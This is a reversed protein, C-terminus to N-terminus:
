LSDNEFLQAESLCALARHIPVPPKGTLIRLIDTTTTQGAYFREILPTPLKYFRELVLHRKDPEAALFLMRNLLRYFGQKRHQRAAHGRIALALAASGALWNEAILDAVHVAEPLSYGTTPHFLGARLGAHAIDEPLESWFREFDHALVIPLVGNERRVVQKINWGRRDAYAQIDESIAAESVDASDSYRTDEILVRTQAIPLLYIFRYGDLQDVAADMIIPHPLGHAESLEVELGVFKQYGVVMAASPRYGRCDIVCSAAKTSGNAFTVQTASLATVETNKSLSVNPLREIAKSVSASTLSAYGSPLHREYSGFRVSQGDWEHAILPAIWALSFPQLDARHFSWTHEGFPTDTSEVIVVQPVDRVTTLRQAIVASALGAGVLVIPPFPDHPGSEMTEFNGGRALDREGTAAPETTTPTGPTVPDVM